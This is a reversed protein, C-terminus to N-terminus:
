LNNIHSVINNFMDSLTSEYDRFENDLFGEIYGEKDEPNDRIMSLTNNVSELYSRTANILNKQGKLLPLAKNFYDMDDVLSKLIRDNDNFFKYKRKLYMLLSATNSLIKVVNM